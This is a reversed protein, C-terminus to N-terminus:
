GFVNYESVAYTQLNNYLDRAFSDKKTDLASYGFSDSAHSSWDHKPKNKFMMLKSDWEKQFNQLCELGRACNTKDIFCNGRLMKRSADVRDDIAQRAQIEIPNLGKERATEIRTNGTSFERQNGDHPWIHRAYEYEKGRILVGDVDTVHGVPKSLARLVKVYHDVGKGNNEYYDIYNFNQGVRQRFWITCHDGIGIDWFTAIPFGPNFPVDTIRAPVSNRMENIIKGYYSGLVAATFSCELEQEIEDPEMDGVMEDIESQDLVGSESAKSVITYWSEPRKQAKIFRHYFHNQGKPTGIFIAWGKRDALAPRIIQGWVIPDCQAYEDLIAGDLYIGRLSDPSDAGLLMFKIKDPEKVWEGTEANKVGQRMITVTLEQKNVEVGPINKTFDQIYEWAVMKAQKYTPAIYAYQPNHKQNRLGQDIMENLSFVTKGWRRHCVVVNFRKLSRHLREQLPRPKYGTTIRRVGEPLEHGLKDLGSYKNTNIVFM